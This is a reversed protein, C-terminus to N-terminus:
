MYLGLPGALVQYYYIPRIRIFTCAASLFRHRLHLNTLRLPTNYM